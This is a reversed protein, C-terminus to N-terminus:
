VWKRSWCAAFNQSMWGWLHKNGSVIQDITVSNALYSRQGLLLFIVILELSEEEAGEGVIVVLCPTVMWCRLLYLSLFLFLYILNILIYNISNYKFVACPHYQKITKEFLLQTDTIVWSDFLQMPTFPAIGAAIWLKIGTIVFMQYHVSCFVYKQNLEKM